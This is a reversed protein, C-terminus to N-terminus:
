ERVTESVKADVMNMAVENKEEDAAMAMLRTNEVALSEKEVTLTSIAGNLKDLEYDYSTAKVGVNVYILGVILVLIAVVVTYSVPGLKARTRQTLNRNRKFVVANGESRRMAYSATIM